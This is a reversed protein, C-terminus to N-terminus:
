VGPVPKWRAQRHANPARAPAARPAGCTAAGATQSSDNAREDSRRSGGSGHRTARRMGREVPIRRKPTGDAIRILVHIDDDNAASYRADGGSIM